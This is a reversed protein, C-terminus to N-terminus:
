DIPIPHFLKLMIPFM